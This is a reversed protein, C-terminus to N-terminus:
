AWRPTQLVRAGPVDVASGNADYWMPRLVPGGEPLPLPPGLDVFGHRAYLAHNRSTSAELYVPLGLGRARDLGHRLMASGPGLGRRAPLTGMSSLYVHPVHPHRAATASM